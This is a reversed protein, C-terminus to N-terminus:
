QDTICHYQLLENQLGLEHMHEYLLTVIGNKSGTMYPAGDTVIGVPNPLESNHKSSGVPQFLGM